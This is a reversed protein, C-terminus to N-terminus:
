GGTREGVSGSRLDGWLLDWAFHKPSNDDGRTLGLVGRLCFLTRGISWLLDAAVLGVVGHHKRFYRRRSDYWYGARRKRPERIGTSAGELHVIEAEPLCWVEWGADRARKCFDVEEFYLFFGEDMLGIQEFVERRAMMAAGSVWDCPHPQDQIPPSVRWRALLRSAPGFRLTAELEGLPSPFTHASCQPRDDADLLRPGVIGVAPHEDLFRAMAAIAGRRVVTDPNLLLVGRNVIRSERNGIQQLTSVVGINNGYAFGGNRPAEIVEVWDSWGNEVIARELVEVSDDRSHNDIVMVRAPSFPAFGSQLSALCGRTLVATAYNVIVITIASGAPSDMRSESASLNAASAPPM